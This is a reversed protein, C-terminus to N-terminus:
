RSDVVGFPVPGVLVTTFRELRAEALKWSDKPLGLKEVCLHDLLTSKDWGTERAVQPLFCGSRDGIDLVVGDNPLDFDMVDQAPVPATLLSIEIELETLEKLTVPNLHFRPDSLVSRAATGVSDWVSESAELQGVCGRLTHDKIRHLSVFAGARQQFADDEPAPSGTEGSAPALAQRIIQRALDLLMKRQNATLNM